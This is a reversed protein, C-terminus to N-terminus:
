YFRIVAKGGKSVGTTCGDTGGSFAGNVYSCKSSVDGSIEINFDLKATSTPLNQFISIYTIGDSAQGVGLIMPAWNGCGLPDVACTWLCCKDPSLGKKNIYYQASTPKGDWQYYKDQIPNTIVIKSHPEAAAPIVMNETGPYDTRCISVVDGLDNQVTVGGAGPICLTKVSPRTLELYGDKNCWVGGVSQKTSGQASSWQSKQYGPPCAYSCMCNPGCTNGAIGTVINSISLSTALSFDSLFQLGSYGGFNLYDLPVAGYDSPFVSCPVKGSPFEADLGKGASGGSPSSPKSAQSSTPQPKSTTSSTTSAAASSSTPSPTASSTTSSTTPAPTSSSSSSTPKELFQAGLSKESTTSATSSSSTPPPPPTYTPTTEGVVVFLGGKLGAAAEEPNLVKGDLQYVIEVPGPVYEVVVNPGHSSDPSAPAEKKAHRHLHHHSNATAGIALTAAITIQIINRM